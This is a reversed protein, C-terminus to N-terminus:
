FFIMVLVKCSIHDDFIVLKDYFLEISVIKAQIRASRVVLIVCYLGFHDIENFLFLIANQTLQLVKFDLGIQVRDSM